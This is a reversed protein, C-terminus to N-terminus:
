DFPVGFIWGERKITQAKHRPLRFASAAHGSQCIQRLGAAAILADTQHDSLTQQDSVQSPRISLSNLKGLAANLDELTKLKAMGAEAKRIFLRPYIETIVIKPNQRMYFPWISINQNASLAAALRMGALGGKGVQKPGILKFPSEPSGYGATTCALETLRRELTLGQPRTGETWFYNSFNKHRWFKEAFLNSDAQCISEVRQWMEAATYDTGFHLKAISEAYGFNCDIGILITENGQALRILWEKIASRSWYRNEPPTIIQPAAKGVKCGAVAISKTQVPHQAGSWDIAVFREFEIM